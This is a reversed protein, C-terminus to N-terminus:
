CFPPRESLPWEMVTVIWQLQTRSTHILTTSQKFFKHFNMSRWQKQTNKRLMAVSYKYKFNMEYYIFYHLFFCLFFGCLVILAMVLMLFFVVSVSLRLSQAQCCMEAWADRGHSLKRRALGTYTESISLLAAHVCVDPRFYHDEQSVNLTGKLVRLSKIAEPHSEVYSYKIDEDVRELFNPKRMMFLAQLLWCLKKIWM